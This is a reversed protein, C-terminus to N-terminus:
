QADVHSPSTSNFLDLISYHEFLYSKEPSNQSHSSEEKIWYGTTESLIRSEQSQWVKLEAAKPSPQLDHEKHLERSKESPRCSTFPILTAILIIMVHSVKM